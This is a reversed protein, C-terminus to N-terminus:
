AALAGVAAIGDFAGEALLAANKATVGGLAYVPVPSQQAMLNARWPWLAARDPHSATPFVPSLFVADLNKAHRLASFSHVAGSVLVGNRARFAAAEGLRREPLHVGRAGCARAAAADGAVLVILRKAQAIKMVAFALARRRGAERSRVIVISGWPLARVAPLPDPLREDDTMLALPPVGSWAALRM